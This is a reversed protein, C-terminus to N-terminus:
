SLLQGLLGRMESWGVSKIQYIAMPCSEALHACHGQKKDKFDKKAGELPGVLICLSSSGTGCRSFKQGALPFKVLLWCVINAAMILFGPHLSHSSKAFPSYNPISIFCHILWINHNSCQGICWFTATEIDPWPMYKGLICNQDRTPSWIPPLWNINREWMLITKREGERGRDRFDIFMDELLILFSLSLCCTLYYLYIM